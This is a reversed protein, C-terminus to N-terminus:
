LGPHKREGPLGSDLGPLAGFDGEAAYGGHSIDVEHYGVPASSPVPNPVM